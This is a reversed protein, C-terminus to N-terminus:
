DRSRKGPKGGRKNGGRQNTRPAGGGDAKPRRPRKNSPRNTKGANTSKAGDARTSASRAGSSRTSAGEPREGTNFKLTGGRGTRPARTVPAPKAGRDSREKARAAGGSGVGGPQLGATLREVEEETVMRWSGLKLAPDRLSGIAVRRLRQVPHGVRFFMERIQRTRGENIAITWWTNTSLDRSGRVRRTEVRAPATVKGELKIGTRLRELAARDPSGKVKVEYSKVCGFRPHAVQNALEGDDTLLLLGETNFDLRGVPRVTERLRSPLLDLVTPRGEPDRRTSVYGPPKNLLVYIGVVSTPIHLRQGNVKVADVAPDAQQGISAVLGNVTVRGDRILEEAQRRSWTSARAMLKQLREHAM